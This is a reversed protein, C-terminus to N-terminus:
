AKIAAAGAKASGGEGWFQAPIEPKCCHAPAVPGV